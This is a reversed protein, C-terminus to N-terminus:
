CIIKLFIEGFPNGLFSMYHGLFTIYEDTIVLWPFYKIFLENVIVYCEFHMVRNMTWLEPCMQILRIESMMM